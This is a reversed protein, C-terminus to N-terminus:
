VQYARTHLPRSLQLEEAYAGLVVAPLRVSTCQVGGIRMAQPKPQCLRLARAILQQPQCREPMSALPGRDAELPVPYLWLSLGDADVLSVGALVAAAHCTGM